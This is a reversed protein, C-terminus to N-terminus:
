TYYSRDCFKRYIDDFASGVITNALMAMWDRESYPGKNQAVTEMQEILHRAWPEPTVKPLTVWAEEKSVTTAQEMLHHFEVGSPGAKKMNTLLKRIEPTFWWAVLMGAAPWAVGKLLDFVATFFQLWVPM